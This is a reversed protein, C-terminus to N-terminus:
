AKCYSLFPPSFHTLTSGALLVFGETNHENDCCVCVCLLPAVQTTAEGGDVTVVSDEALDLVANTNMHHVVQERLHTKSQTEHRM